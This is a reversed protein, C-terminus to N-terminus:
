AAQPQVEGAFPRLLQRRLLQFPQRREALHRCGVLLAQQPAVSEHVHQELLEIRHLFRDVFREGRTRRQLLVFVHLLLQTVFPVLLQFRGDFRFIASLPRIEEQRHLPPQPIHPHLREAM